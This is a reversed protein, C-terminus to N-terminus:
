PAITNWLRVTEDDGRGVEGIQAVGFIEVIQEFRRPRVVTTRQITEILDAYRLPRFDLRRIKGLREVVLRDGDDGELRLQEARRRVVPLHDRFNRCAVAGGLHKPLQGLLQGPARLRLLVAGAQDRGEDLFQQLPLM